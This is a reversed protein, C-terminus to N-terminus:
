NSRMTFLLIVTIAAASIIAVPQIIDKWFSPPAEPIDSKAFDFDTKNFEKADDRSIIDKYKIDNLKLPLMKNNKSQIIGSWKISITRVLSDSDNEYNEYDTEIQLKIDLFPLKGSKRDAYYFTINNESSKNALISNFFRDPESTKIATFVTDSNLKKLNTILTTAASDLKANIFDITPVTINIKGQLPM